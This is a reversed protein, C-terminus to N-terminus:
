CLESNMLHFLWLSDCIDFKKGDPDIRTLTFIDEFLHEVMKGTPPSSAEPKQRHETEVATAPLPLAARHRAPPPPKPRSPKPQLWQAKAKELAETPRLKHGRGCCGM